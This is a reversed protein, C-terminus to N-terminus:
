FMVPNMQIMGHRDKLIITIMRTERGRVMVIDMETMVETPFQTTDLSKRHEIMVGTMTIM